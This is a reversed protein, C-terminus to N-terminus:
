YNDLSLDQFAKGKDLSVVAKLKFDPFSDGVGLM